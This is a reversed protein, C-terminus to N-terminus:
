CERVLATDVVQLGGPVGFDTGGAGAVAIDVAGAACASDGQLGLRADILAGGPQGLEESRGVALVREVADTRM